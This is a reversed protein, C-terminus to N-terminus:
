VYMGPISLDHGRWGGREENSLSIYAKLSCWPFETGLLLGGLRERAYWVSYHRPLMEELIFLGSISM